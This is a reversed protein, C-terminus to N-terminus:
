RRGARVNSIPLPRSHSPFRVIKPIIYHDPQCSGHTVFTYLGAHTKVNDSVHMYVHLMGIIAKSFATNM